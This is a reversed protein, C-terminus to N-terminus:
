AVTEHRDTLLMCGPAHTIALPVRATELAVQSTVGCAWFVPVDGPAFRVSEGFDPRDLDAIGIAAPDGQHVPAGHMEPFGATITTARAAHEPSMPRMSVVLNGGFPGAAVNALSTRYMSVNRRQEVHRLPIGHAMLAREFSFSCGIVFTVLEDHWLHTIDTTEQVFVGDRWIRYRPLDSRIDIDHGLEPLSPDGPHSVGILHCARSNAACFRRFDAAWAAPLIAVNGQALGPALGATPGSMEGRRFRRRLDGATQIM